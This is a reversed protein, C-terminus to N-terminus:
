IELGKAFFRAMTKIFLDRRASDMHALRTQRHRETLLMTTVASELYFVAERLIGNNVSPAVVSLETVIRETIFDFRSLAAAVVAEEYAGAAKALLITYNRMDSDPAYGTELFFRLYNEIHTKVSRDSGTGLEGDFVLNFRATFVPLRRLITATFLDDKSRFYYTMLGSNLGADKFVDRITTAHFGRQSFIREAADLIADKTDGVGKRLKQNGSSSAM